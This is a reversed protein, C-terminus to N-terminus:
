ATPIVAIWMVGMPSNFCRAPAPAVEGLLADMSPARCVMAKSVEVELKRDTFITKTRVTFLNALEVLTDDMDAGDFNIEFGAFTNAIKCATAEGMAVVGAWDAGGGVSIIVAAAPESKDPSQDKLPRIRIDCASDLARSVAEAMVDGHKPIETAAQDNAM